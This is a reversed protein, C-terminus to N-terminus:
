LDGLREVYCWSQPPRTVKFPMLYKEYTSESTGNYIGYLWDDYSLAGAKTFENLEKPTDYIVNVILM